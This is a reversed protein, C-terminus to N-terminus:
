GSDRDENRWYLLDLHVRPIAKRKAVETAVSQFARNTSKDVYKVGKFQIKRGKYEREKRLGEVVHSDIPVELLAEIKELGFHERLLYNVSTLCLSVSRVYKL